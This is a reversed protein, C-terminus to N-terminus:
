RINAGVAEVCSRGFRAVIRAIIDRISSIDRELKIKRRAERINFRGKERRKEPIANIAM